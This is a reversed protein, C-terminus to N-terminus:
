TSRQKTSSSIVWTEPLISGSASKSTTSVSNISASMSESSFRRRLTSFFALPPSLSAMWVSSSRLSARSCSLAPLGARRAVIAGSSWFAQFISWSRVGLGDKVDAIDVLVGGGGAVLEGVRDDGVGFGFAGGGDDDGGLDLAFGGDEGIVLLLFEEFAEAEFFRAEVADDAGAVFEEAELGVEGDARFFGAGPRDLFARGGRLGGADDVAIELLAEDLGFGDGVGVVDLEVAFAACLFVALGPLFALFVDHLVAVDHM